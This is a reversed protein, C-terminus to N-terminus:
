RRWLFLHLNKRIYAPILRFFLRLLLNRFFEAFNIFSLKHFMFHVLIERKLYSFGGRRKIQLHNTRFYLLPEQMNYFISNTMIMRVWLYYDEYFPCHLYNGAEIVKKKRYMVGPHSIPSKFKALKVIETHTEPRKKVAIINNINEVFISSWCSVVDFGENLKVIQKKFRDQYSIDDSDMRAIIDNSCVQIGHNLAVGLGMNKELQVIKVPAKKHFDNIVDDLERTLPGDKVIVIEDPKLSQKDWISNLADFLYNPNEKDYVSILVSFLNNNM